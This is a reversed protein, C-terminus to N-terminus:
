QVKFEVLETVWNLSLAQGVPGTEFSRKVWRKVEPAYWLTSRQRSFINADLRRFTGIAEIKLARFKGAPVEVDEWGVVKSRGEARGRAPGGRQAVLEYAYMQEAGVQLPFQYLRIPPEFVQGFRGLSVVSWDSEYQSEHERGDDISDVTLIVGSGAFSVRLTSRSTKPVNTQHETFRYSWSDGVKVDPKPVPASEDAGLVPISLALLAAIVFTQLSATRTM